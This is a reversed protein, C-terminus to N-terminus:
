MQALEGFWSELSVRAVGSQSALMREAEALRPVGRLSLQQEVYGNMSSVGYSGTACYAAISTLLSDYLGPAGAVMVWYLRKINDSELSRAAVTIVAAKDCEEKDAAEEQAESPPLLLYTELDTADSGQLEGTGLNSEWAKAYAKQAAFTAPRTKSFIHNAVSGYMRVGSLFKEQVPVMEVPTLAPKGSHVAQEQALGQMVVPIARLEASWLFDADQIFNQLPHYMEGTGPYETSRILAQITLIERAPTEFRIGLEQVKQCAIHINIVDKRAGGSHGDDHFLGAIILNSVFQHNIGSILNAAVYLRYATIAVYKAHTINHYGLAFAPNEALAAKYWQTIGLVECVAELEATTRRDNLEFMAKILDSNPARHNM